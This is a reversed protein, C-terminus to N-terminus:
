IISFLYEMAKEIESKKVDHVIQLEMDNKMLVATLENGIQKKDKHMAEIILDINFLSHDFKINIIQLLIKEIRLVKDESLWGRLCSVRNAIITGMAVATGHPIAYKSITEFAHGFTHAFNLKIRIGRDFEDEEIFQKKFLLSSEVFEKVTSSNRDLLLHINQEMKEIGQEGFMVNFKVVEGLGSQFDRESLTNFFPTCIRIEDPPYFTGLLNKFKKYNLSTKGGICSDCAALLTTPFFTWYIGRYLINAVFGTIDQVIGGGFSILKTNRKASLKTMIECIELAQDITKNEEIADLLYIRDVNISSFVKEKYIEYVKKDIIVFTCDDIVINEAKEMNEYINVFYDKFKSKIVM